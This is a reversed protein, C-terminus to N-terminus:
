GSVVEVCGDVFLPMSCRQNVEVADGFDEESVFHFGVREGANMEINARAFVDGDGTRGAAAFRRQKRNEPQEVSRRVAAIRELAAFHRVERKGSRARIRLRSIPNMKWLKLRM